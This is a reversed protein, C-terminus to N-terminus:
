KNLIWIQHSNRFITEKVKFGVNDIISKIDKISIWSIQYNYTILNKLKQGSLVATYVSVDAYQMEYNYCFMNYIVEDNKKNHYGLQHKGDNERAKKINFIDTDFILTEGTQM